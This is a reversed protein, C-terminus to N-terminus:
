ETSEAPEAGEEDRRETIVEPEAGAAEEPIAEEEEEVIKAIHVSAVVGDPNHETRVNPPLSVDSVSITEGLELESVDVVLADPIDSALCIVDLETLPQELFAGTEKLGPCNAEGKMEIRVQVTLEETLDVRTLDIHIVDDGLYNYQVDRILCTESTGSAHEVELLHAGHEMQEIIVPADFAVHVPDEKHGYIVAPLKGDRRLRIAYRTGLRERQEAKVKPHQRAM